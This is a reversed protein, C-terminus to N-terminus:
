KPRALTVQFCAGGAGDGSAAYSCQGGNAHALERVIWLGLGSGKARTNAAEARSFREFLHAVHDDPVGDGEDIVRLQVSNEDLTEATITVPARGYKAANSVLNVLIQDLQVRDVLAAVGPEAPCRIDLDPFGEAIEQVAPALEVPERRAALAGAEVQSQLLLDDIFRALRRSQADIITVFELRQEEDIETWRTRLTSAFGSISTLPTRLDHVVAAFYAASDETTAREAARLQLESEVLGTFARLVRMDHEDWDRPKTDMACLTGLTRGQADVLPFGLYAIANYRRIAPNDRLLPHKRADNVALPEGGGVVYQCYSYEIPTERVGPEEADYRSTFVQRDPLVLCLLCTPAELMGAALQTLRDFAPIAPGGVLGSSEM